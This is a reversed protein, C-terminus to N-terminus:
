FNTYFDITERNYNVHVIIIDTKKYFNYIENNNLINWKYDENVYFINNNNNNEFFISGIFNNIKFRYKEYTIYFKNVISYKNNNYPVLRKDDNNIIISNKIFFLNDFQQFKKINEESKIAVNEMFEFNNIIEIIIILVILLTIYIYIYM